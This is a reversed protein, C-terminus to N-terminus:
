LRAYMHEIHMCALMQERWLKCSLIHVCQVSYVTCVCCLHEYVSVMSKLYVILGALACLLM